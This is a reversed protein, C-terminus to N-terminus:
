LKEEMIVWDFLVDETVVNKVSVTFGEGFKVETVAIGQDLAVKPTIFVKSSINAAKTKVFFTKADSKTDDDKGDGDVDNKISTITAEGITRAEPDLVSVVLKGAEIQVATLKGAISIDSVDQGQGIGLMMKILAVDQTNLDIQAINLESNAKIQLEDMQTQLTQILNAQLALQSGLDTVVTTQNAVIQNFNDEAVKVLQNVQDEVNMNAINLAVAEEVKEVTLSQNRRSILVQITGKDGSFAQIAVGVTSEGANSKRLYGATQAATLSDGIQIEGNETSVKGPVQGLMGIIKYNPDNDRETGNGNGVISPNSSVVGMVNNDGSRTCRKVANENTVDVCVVEGPELDTDKTYFYEAYDAGNTLYGNKSNIKSSAHQVDLIYGPTTTGIGVGLATVGGVGDSTGYITLMSNGDLSATYSNVVGNASAATVPMDIWSIIGSDQAFEQTGISLSAISAVGNTDISFQSTGAIGNGAFIKFKNSDTADVGMSYQQAGAGLRFYNNTNDWYLNANNQDYIGSAGAFVLSGQTFQTTSGTGGHTVDIATGNWVGTTITGLTTISSAGTWTGASIAALEANYGQVNTGIALGLNTRATAADTAGTGGNAVAVTGSLYATSDWSWVGATNKLLGNTSATPLTYTVDAAQDGGQLYTYYTPTTGTEIIGLKAGVKVALNSVSGAGDSTGHVTLMANGDLMAGYSEVTGNTAASTVPMDTWAIAGSNEAFSQAGLQLSSINTVGSADISFQGSGAIGNGAAIKFKNSDTTDVGMSYQQAGAGLRFYNNTNDWYLNANNQDYVGSAGAFVLSGQTFQTLTGSGGSTVPLIGTVNTSALNIANATIQQGTLSLYNEGALTVASHIATGSWTPVGGVLTLVQGDSGLAIKGLTTTTNAYLMDGVSYSAYGTGGYQAGLATSLTLSNFAVDSTTNITQPLSITVDGNAASVAVQNATGALSTVGTNAISISGAGNTVSIGTSATLTALSFGAGNGILLSGNAATAGNVGTGGYQAGVATGQWAGAVVQGSANVQFQSTAGISFLATPTVTGIGVNGFINMGGQYINNAALMSKETKGSIMVRDGTGTIAVAVFLGNSYTVSRWYNENASTRTTWNIGNTSTMVRYEFGTDSVAVFLGNGYTVSRWENSMSGTRSTWTIGNPSTMVNNSIGSSSVAVFLGNGYTVSSWSTDLASTRITWNIGDPSTMVRNGTGTTAVAVFLGNGYTVSMWNNDAASTRSTWNIGDPSTMVRNGTGSQAVAVFLGNGYTVSMWNNDAASTRSTWNIGDPSTMVRNGTGSQAVAVFLGNGYTVSMWNNDAASTRSTWNIGDPSTMVRNGTGSQAVAVFLGNGYTVSMWNNDAASTSATWSTGKSVIDGVVELKATPAATGIGLRNNSNDWFINANNQSYIGSAGAFVLSGQTFQTTTGTGGHTVDIATGNWTGTEITGLTTINTSGAWTSLATDEVNGLGIDNKTLTVWALDAGAGNSKLLQGSTGPGLLSWTPTAGQGTIIAGQTVSATTTDSHSASLFPHASGSVAGWTPVGAVVTLAQGNTGIALKSLATGSSYYLLDGATYTSLGTGGYDSAIVIGNWTKNTLTESSSATIFGYENGWNTNGDTIYGASSHNGWGYATNWNTSNDTIASAIGGSIKLIGSFASVDANLGGKTMAINDGSWTGATITGLTTLSTSGTWTGGAIAALNANYGQIDTGIVLGLNTRAGAADGAGTGGRTVALYQENGLTNTGTWYTVYGNVGTGTIGGVGSVSACQWVKGTNDWALVENNACGQLLSLQNNLAGSFQLGSFSSTSATGGNASLLAVSLTGTETIPGGTLGNGSAVSTVTGIGGSGGEVSGWYLNSSADIKLVQGSSGTAVPLTYAIDSAQTGSNQFATKYTGSKINLVGDLTAGAFTPSNTTQLNQNISVNSGAITLTRSTTGGAISFGDALASLTLGNVSSPTINGLTLTIAPTTTANAVSGSIGNATTVSVTTVTGNGNAVINGNLKQIAQLITDTAAVTGAGSIYNTLLKGTVATDTFSASPLANTALTGQAATAYATTATFAATGLLGTVSNLNAVTATMGTLNTATAANGTTDQNLIPIDAVAIARMTPMGVSGNPAAWFFNATSSSFAPAYSSSATYAATGLTGGTTVILTQGAAINLTNTGNATISLGNYTKGTLASAIKNDAIATGNWTGTAITGLTTINTSGAWTSLATDEVNGLGIDNKTLTVWALDAGAGNSKLLQGSTGPGLLSWTPTAGQGTIIAGQTVSATTTDSHSASLFPHASGSVAGWTPVGAVVTLAQGNTGIALKSLATGSSYYLLDGATYTSLGTGGSAITLPSTLTLSAFTADATTSINQPLSITIVGTNASATIQNATGNLQTVGTNTISVTGPGNTVSIGTSGSITALSFNAGNGVLLQGNTPTASLGTGGKSIGLVALETLTNAAGWIALNNQTGSGTVGGAGLVSVWSPLHTIPDIMLVKSDAGVNSLKSLTNLASAYILDGAVYNNIGTGGRVASITGGNWVSAANAFNWGGTIVENQDKRAIKSNTYDIGITAINSALSFTFDSTGNFALTNFNIEEISEEGNVKIVAMSAGVFNSCKWVKSGNDWSLVQSNACGQLLTLQNSSDGAFELGSFSQTTTTTGDISDLLDAKGLNSFDIGNNSYQWSGSTGNFRMAPKNTENGIALDFNNGAIGSELGLNFVLKATGTDTNQLHIDGINSFRSDNGLVLQNSGTGTPLMKIDIKGKAGLQPINGEGTGLIAGALAASDMALAVSSMKKRPVFESDNNIRIGLFYENNSFNLDSPLPVSAGLYANLVGDRIYVKQTEQWSRQGADANSPYPDTTTRDTRYLSFRIEYEGNQLSESKDNSVFASVNIQPAVQARTFKFGIALLLFAFSTAVAILIKNKNNRM